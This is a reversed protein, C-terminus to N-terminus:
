ELVVMQHLQIEKESQIKVIYTASVLGTTRFSVIHTGAALTQLPLLTRHLRGTLDYLEITTQQATPLYLQLNGQAQVPNPYLTSRVASVFPVSRTAISNAPATCGGIMATFNSGNEATFGVELTIMNGADLVVTSGSVVEGSTTINNSAQYTGNPIEGAGNLLEADALDTPCTSGACSINAAGPTGLENPTCTTTALCWNAANDNETVDNNGDLLAADFNLAEGEVIPFDMSFDVEDILTGDCLLSLQDGSNRLGFSTINYVATAAGCGVDGNISIVAYSGAAINIPTASTIIEQDTDDAVTIGVLNITNATANYIEFWENQGIAEDVMIETIILDGAALGTCIELIFGPTGASSRLFSGMADFKLSEGDGDGGDDETYIISSQAVDSGNRLEVTYPGNGNAITNDATGVTNLPEGTANFDPIFLGGCTASGNCDNFGDGQGDDGLAITLCSGAAITTGSPFEFLENGQYTIDWLSIDTNTAGNNCIEIWEDDLDPTNYMVESIYVTAYLQQGAFLSFFLLGILKLQKM